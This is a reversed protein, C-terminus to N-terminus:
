SVCAGRQRHINLDEGGQRNRFDDQCKTMCEKVGVPLGTLFLSKQMNWVPSLDEGLGKLSSSLYVEKGIFMATMVTPRKKLPVNTSTWIQEMEEYADKALAALQSDANDFVEVANKNKFRLRSSFLYGTGSAKGGKKADIKDEAIGLNPKCYEVYNVPMRKELEDTYIVANIDVSSRSEIVSSDLASVSSFLLAKFLVIALFSIHYNM